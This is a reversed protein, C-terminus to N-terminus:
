LLALSTLHPIPFIPRRVELDDKSTEIFMFTILDSWSPVTARTFPSLRFRLPIHFRFRLRDRSDAAEANMLPNGVLLIVVRLHFRPLPLAAASATPAARFDVM